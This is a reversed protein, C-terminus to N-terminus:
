NRSATDLFESVMPVLLPARKMWRMHDTSSCPLRPAALGFNWPHEPADCQTALHDTGRPSAV